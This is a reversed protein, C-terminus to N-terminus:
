PSVDTFLKSKVKNIDPFKDQILKNVEDKDYRLTQYM